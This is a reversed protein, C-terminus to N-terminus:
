KQFKELHLRNSERTRAKFTTKQHDKHLEEAQNITM